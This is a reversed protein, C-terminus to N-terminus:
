ERPKFLLAAIENRSTCVAGAHLVQNGFKLEVMQPNQDVAIICHDAQNFSTNNMTTAITFLSLMTEASRESLRNGTARLTNGLLLGNTFLNATGLSFSQNDQYALDDLTAVVHCVASTNSQGTRSQNDSFMVNGAPLLTDVAAARASLMSLPTLLVLAAAAFAALSAM